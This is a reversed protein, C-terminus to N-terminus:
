RTKILNSDLCRTPWSRKDWICAIYDQPEKQVAEKGKCHAVVTESWVVPTLHQGSFTLISFTNRWCVWIPKNALCVSKASEQFGDKLNCERCRLGQGASGPYTRNQLCHLDLDTPKKLFWSIQIQVTQWWTHLKIVVIQILYDSHCFILLPCPM